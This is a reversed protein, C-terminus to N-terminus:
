WNKPHRQQQVLCFHRRLVCHLHVPPAALSSLLQRVLDEEVAAPPALRDYHERGHELLWARATAYSEEKTKGTLSRCTDAETAHLLWDFTSYAGAQMEAVQKKAFDAAVSNLTQNQADELVAEADYQAIAPNQAAFDRRPRCCSPSLLDISASHHKEDLEASGGASCPVCQILKEEVFRITPVDSKKVRAPAPLPPVNRVSDWWAPKYWLGGRIQERWEDLLRLRRRLRPM